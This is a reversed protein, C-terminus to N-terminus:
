LGLLEKLAEVQKASLNCNKGTSLKKIIDEPVKPTSKSEVANNALVKYRSRAHVLSAKVFDYKAKDKPEVKGGSFHKSLYDTLSNILRRMREADTIADIDEIGMMHAPKDYKTGGTSRSNKNDYKLGRVFNDLLEVMKDLNKHTSNTIPRKSANTRYSSFNRLLQNYVPVPDGNHMKDACDKILESITGDSIAAEIAATGNYAVSFRLSLEKLNLASTLNTM